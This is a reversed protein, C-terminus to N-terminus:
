YDDESESDSERRRKRYPPDIGPVESNSDLTVIRHGHASPRDDLMRVVLGMSKHYSVFRGVQKLITLAFRALLLQPALRGPAGEAAAAAALRVKRQHHQPGLTNTVGVFHAVWRDLKYVFAWQLANFSACVDPRLTVRNTLVDLAARDGNHGEAYKRMGEGLYWSWQAEPVIYACETHDVDATVVCGRDIHAVTYAQESPPVCRDKTTDREAPWTPPLDGHPFSWDAFRPCIPYNLPDPSNPDEKDVSPMGPLHSPRRVHYFYQRGTLLADFPESLPPGNREASLYGNWQNCAVIGCAILATRHHLGIGDGDNAALMFM